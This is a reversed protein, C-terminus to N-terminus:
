FRACPFGYSEKLKWSLTFEKQCSVWAALPHIIGAIFFSVSHPFRGLFTLGFPNLRMEEWSERLGAAYLLSSNRM